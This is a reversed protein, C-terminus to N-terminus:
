ELAIKTERFSTSKDKRKRYLLYNKQERTNFIVTDVRTKERLNITNTTKNKRMSKM